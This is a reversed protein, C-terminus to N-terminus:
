RQGGLSAIQFVKNNTVLQDIESRISNALQTGSKIKRFAMICRNPDTMKFGSPGFPNSSANWVSTGIFFDFRQRGKIAGGTDAVILYGPHPMTGKGDVRPVPTGALEPVEILDGMAYHKPDAAVHIYPTLCVGAAGTTTSCGKPVQDVKRNYRYLYKEGKHSVQISGQLRAAQHAAPCIRAYKGRGLKIRIKHKNRCSFNQAEPLYYNTANFCSMDSAGDKFVSEPANQYLASGGKAYGDFGIVMMATALSTLTVFKNLTKQKRFVQWLKSM